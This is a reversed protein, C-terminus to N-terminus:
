ARRFLLDFHLVENSVPHRWAPWGDILVFGRERMMTIAEPVEMEGVYVESVAVEMRVSAIRDLVGEAGLIVDREFGQTDIKLHVRDSPHAVTDWLSDLRVVTVTEHRVYRVPEHISILIDTAPRLSSSVLNGSVGIEAPGDESGIALNHTEWLPDATAARTLSEFCDGIPEFSAIRGTYGAARLGQGTQGANAGVDLFLTIGARTLYDIEIDM